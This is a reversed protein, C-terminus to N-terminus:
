EWFQFLKIRYLVPMRLPDRQIIEPVSECKHAIGSKVAVIQIIPGICKPVAIDIVYEFAAAILYRCSGNVSIVLPLGPLSVGFVWM